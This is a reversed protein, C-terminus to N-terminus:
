FYLDRQESERIEALRNVLETKHPSDPMQKLQREIVAEETEKRVAAVEERRERLSEWETLLEEKQRRLGDVEAQIDTVVAVAERRKELEAELDDLTIQKTEIRSQLAELTSAPGQATVIRDHRVSLILQLVALLALIGLIVYAILTNTTLLGEM